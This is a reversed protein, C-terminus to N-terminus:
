EFKIEFVVPWLKGTIFTRNTAPDYAIGNLVANQARYKFQNMDEKAYRALIGTFDAKGVVVGTSLDIKLVYDSGWQNAYVFGRIYELENINNVPGNNDTVPITRTIKLSVPDVLYINST